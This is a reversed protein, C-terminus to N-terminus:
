VVAAFARLLLVSCMPRIVTTGRESTEEGGSVTHCFIAISGSLLSRASMIGTEIM